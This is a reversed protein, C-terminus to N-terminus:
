TCDQIPDSGDGDSCTENDFGTSGEGNVLMGLEGVDFLAPTIYVSDTAQEVTCCEDCGLDDM